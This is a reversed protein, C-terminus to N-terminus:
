VPGFGFTIALLPSLPPPPPAPREAAGGGIGGLWCWGGFMFIFPPTARPPAGFPNTGHVGLAEPAVGWRGNAMRAAMPAAAHPNLVCVCWCVVCL